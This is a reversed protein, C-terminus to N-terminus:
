KYTAIIANWVGVTSLVNQFKWTTTFTGTSSAKYLAVGIGQSFPPGSGSPTVAGQATLQVFSNSWSITPRFDSFPTSLNMTGVAIIIENAATTTPTTGFNMVNGNVSSNTTLNVNKDATTYGSFEIAILNWPTNGSTTNITISTETGNSIKSYISTELDQVLTADRSWGTPITLTQGANAILILLNGSQPANAFTVTQSSADATSNKIAYQVFLSPGISPWLIPATGPM